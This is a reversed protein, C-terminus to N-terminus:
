VEGDGEPPHLPRATASAEDPSIRSGPRDGELHYGAEESCGGTAAHLPYRLQGLENSVTVLAPLPMEVVEYGDREVVVGGNEIEVKRAVSYDPLFALPNVDALKSLGQPVYGLLGELEEAGWEGWATGSALLGLPCLIFFVALPILARRYRKM